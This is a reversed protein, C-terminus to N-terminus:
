AMVGGKQLCTKENNKELESKPPNIYVPKLKKLAPIKHNFRAPNKTFTNLLVQHRNKLIDDSRGFHVSAPKLFLIGSHYHENNYWNLFRRCFKEAAGIEEFREPFEPCYKLTKFQSESFPNDNSTYPRNHTKLIGIKELLQSVTQSTMSPGNDSHITLQGPQIGQKLTTKQILQKALHQCERDAIMWGVVYRSFIDLIVYLHYYVFRNYSLIKTIDWSWVQNPATAILEPKIADRHNRQDRRDKTEGHEFLVRYMTRISSIYQGEDLLTYFVEYPTSDIFRESHLLNLIEQRQANDLANHPRQKSHNVADRSDSEQNRYLTARSIHLSDCMAAIAVNKEDSIQKIYNM